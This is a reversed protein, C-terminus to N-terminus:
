DNQEIPILEEVEDDPRFFTGLNKGEKYVRVLTGWTASGELTPDLEDDSIFQGDKYVGWDIFEEVNFPILYDTDIDCVGEIDAYYCNEEYPITGVRYVAKCYLSSDSDELVFYLRM